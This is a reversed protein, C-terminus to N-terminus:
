TNSGVLGRWSTGDCVLICAENQTVTARTTGGDESITLAETADATNFILFVRGVSTAEAPLTIARGAGGPDLFQVTKDGEVMTKTGALTETNPDTFAFEDVTIAGFVSHGLTRSIVM